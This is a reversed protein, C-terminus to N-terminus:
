RRHAARGRAGLTGDDIWLRVGPVAAALHAALGRRPGRGEIGDLDAVYLAPFTFLAAYGRAVDVPDSGAALPTELPTTPASARARAARGAWPARRHGPHDDM